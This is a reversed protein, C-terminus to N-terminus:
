TLLMADGYSYFRYGRMVAEAYAARVRDWGALASVLLLLPSRPLHFNTLLADVVGFRYGPTIFIDTESPGARAGSAELARLSTTGVAIVRGGRAHTQEVLQATELPIEFRESHM